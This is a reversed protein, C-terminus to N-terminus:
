PRAVMSYHGVPAPRSVGGARTGSKPVCASDVILLIRFVSLIFKHISPDLKTKGLAKEAIKMCLKILILGVVLVILALVISGSYDALKDAIKNIFEM